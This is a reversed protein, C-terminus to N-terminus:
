LSWPGRRRERSDARFADWRVFPPRPLQSRGRAPCTRPSARCITRSDSLAPSRGDEDGVGFLDTEVHGLEVFAQAGPPARVLDDGVHLRAREDSHRSSGCEENVASNNEPASGNSSKASTMSSSSARDLFQCVTRRLLQRPPTVRGPNTQPPTKTRAAGIAAGGRGGM